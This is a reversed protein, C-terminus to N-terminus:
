IFTTAIEVTDTATVFSSDTLGGVVIVQNNPLVAAYCQRRPTRMHSIVKWSNSSSHYIHVASTSMDHTDGGGFALLRSHLSVYASNLTPVDTVRRWVNPSSTQGLIQHARRTQPSCSQLLANLSCTYVSKIPVINQDYGGLMYLQDQTVELLSGFFTPLPLDVATSWQCTSTNFVETKAVFYKEGRGGAVILATKMGLACVGYRKTPMPPFEETWKPSRGTTTLSLLKNTINPSSLGIIASIASVSKGGVLTLLDRLVVLACGRFSSDPLQSWVLTSADYAYVKTQHIIYLCNGNVAAAVEGVFYREIRCPAKEGKRWELKLGGNSEVAMSQLVDKKGLQLELESSRAEATIKERTVQELKMALAEIEEDKMNGEDELQRKQERLKWRLRQIELLGAAITEDKQVIMGDKEELHMVQSQITEQLSAIQRGYQQRLSEEIQSTERRQEEAVRVSKSYEHNHKLSALRRCLEEASPREVDKDKLCDLATALLPHSPDIKSIHNQRRECESVRKELMGINDIEIEERRDGPQPFLRTIIQVTIVGFSFCDIKETYVPKDKVAEPPMYVDTGPCMTFSLHSARQATMDGLSAMGFDTVKARIDGIMLVNNSSLDRHIIGNSHLFSIALTVDHCVNVQIHYPIPQPSSELFHTLSDDMLEMLLVPLRTDPDQYMGLYQIINPHRITSLFECEQEFRRMPLRHENHHTVLHQATPDFLTEHILKAACLLGDCEAKCVKGYSGIGLTQDKLLKIAKFGIRREQQHRAMNSNLAQLTFPNERDDLQIGQAHAIAASSIAFNIM